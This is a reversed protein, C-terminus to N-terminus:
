TPIRFSGVVIAGGYSMIEPAGLIYMNELAHQRLVNHRMAASLYGPFSRAAHSM